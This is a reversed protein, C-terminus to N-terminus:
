CPNLDMHLPLAAWRHICPHCTAAWINRNSVILDVKLSSAKSICFSGM